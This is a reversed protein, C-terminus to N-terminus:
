RNDRKMLSSNLVSSIIDTYKTFVDSFRRTVDASLPKNSADSRISSFFNDAIERVERLKDSVQPPFRNRGAVICANTRKRFDIVLTNAKILGSAGDSGASSSRSAIWACTAGRERQIRHVLGASSNWAEHLEAASAEHRAQVWADKNM